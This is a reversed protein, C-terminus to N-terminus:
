ADQPGTARRVNAALVHGLEGPFIPKTIVSQYGAEKAAKLRIPDAFATVAIATLATLGRARIARLLQMGDMGPMALDSVLADFPPGGAARDLADLAAAGSSVTVVEAGYRELMLAIVGLSEANDDVVLVRLGDLAPAATGTVLGPARGPPENSPPAHLPLTVAMTTGLDAGSSAATIHGHHLEVLQKAIALGLGLGGHRRTSSLDAQQFRDFVHPLFTPEIGIGTDRVTAVLGDAGAQVTIRVHGGEPTFKVANALLNWFVQKLRGADGQLLPVPLYETDVTIQKQRAMPEITERARELVDALDVPGIELPVKGSLIASMDLLDDILHVQTRASREIAELGRRFMAEDYPRMALLQAWGLVANLPTRLEHSVTALFDDKLRSAREAEERARSEAELLLARRAEAQRHETIDIVANTLGIIEGTDDRLPMVVVDYVVRQTHRRRFAFEVRTPLGTAIVRQGADTLRSAARRGFVERVTRGLLEHPQLGFVPNHVWTFHMTNDVDYLSIPSAQLAALLRQQSVRQQTEARARREAGARARRLQECLVCILLTGLALVVLQTPLIPQAPPPSIQLAALGAFLAAYGAIAVVGPWFGGYWAAVTVVPFALYFPLRIGAASELMLRAFTGAVAAGIAVLWASPRIPPADGQPHTSFLAADQARHAAPARSSPHLLSKVISRM